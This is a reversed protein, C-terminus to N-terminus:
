FRFQYRVRWGDPELSPGETPRHIEYNLTVRHFTARDLYYSTGLVVRNRANVSNSATRLDVRELDPDFWDYFAVVDLEPSVALSAGLYAGFARTDAKSFGNWGQSWIAESELTWPGSRYRLDTGWRRVPTDAPAGEPRISGLHGSLGLKLERTVPFVFRCAADKTGNRESANRQQGQFTGLDWEFGSDTRGGLNLGLDREQYLARTMDSREITLTESSSRLGERGFRVKFQGALLSLDEGLRVRVFCDRLQAEDDRSDTHGQVVVDVDRGLHGTLSLRLRRIALHTAAPFRALGDLTPFSSDASRSGLHGSDAQLELQGHVEASPVFAEPAPPSPVVEQSSAPAPILLVLLLPLLLLLRTLVIRRGGPERLPKM